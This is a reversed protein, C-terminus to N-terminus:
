YPRKKPDKRNDWFLLIEIEKKRPKIRYFMMNHKTLFGKRVNKYKKSAEFIHPDKKIVLFLREVDESFKNAVTTGWENQLYDSVIFYSKLARLSWIINM